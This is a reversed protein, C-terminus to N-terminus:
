FRVFEAGRTKKSAPSDYGFSSAAQAQVQALTIEAAVFCWCSKSKGKEQEGRIIGQGL